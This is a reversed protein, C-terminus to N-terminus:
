NVAMAPDIEALATKVLSAIELPPQYSRVVFQTELGPRRDQSEALFVIPTFEERLDNYKTDKVLGVIEYREDPKGGEQVVGLTSGM